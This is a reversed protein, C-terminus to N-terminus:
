DKITLYVLRQLLIKSYIVFCLSSINNNVIVWKCDLDVNCVKQDVFSVVKEFYKRNKRYLIPVNFKFDVDKNSHMEIEIGKIVKNEEDYKTEKM